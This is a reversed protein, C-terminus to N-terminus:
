SLGALLRDWAHREHRPFHSAFHCRKCTWRVGALPPIAAGGRALPDRHHCEGDAWCWLLRVIQCRGSPPRRAGRGALTRWAATSQLHARGRADPWAPVGAIGPCTACSKRPARACCRARKRRPSGALGDDRWRDTAAPPNGPVRVPARRGRACSAPYNLPPRPARWSESVVGATPLRVM